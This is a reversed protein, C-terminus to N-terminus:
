AVRGVRLSLPWRMVRPTDPDGWAAALDQTFTEMLDARLAQEAARVASWTGVYGILDALRWSAEITLPPPEIERFPFALTRYGAEVLRRESPWYPGIVDHYFRHLVVDPEGDVHGVGYSILAVVAAPRAVRRAEAYFRNLDLWHAAQAVTVLDVSADPLGSEEAPAVRYEVRQHAEAHEIQSASGDTAVVRDFRRALPVSLQGTGCACDLALRRGPATEALFDVVAAPYTPRHAAYGAAHSSFYDKFHTRSRDPAM